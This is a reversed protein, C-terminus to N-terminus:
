LSKPYFDRIGKFLFGVTETQREFKERARDRCTETERKHCHSSGRDRRHRQELVLQVDHNGRNPVQVEQLHPPREKLWVVEDYDLVTVWRLDDLDGFAEDVLEVIAVMDFLNQTGFRGANREFVGGAAAETVHDGLLLVDVGDIIIAKYTGEILFFFFFFEPISKKPHKRSGLHVFKQIKCSANTGM